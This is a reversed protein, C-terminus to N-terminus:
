ELNQIQERIQEVLVKLDVARNAVDSRTAKSALTNAERNLEQALFDLRRGVAQDSSLADRMEAVHATLRDLEEAVDAKQALLAVEQELRQPDLQAALTQARERLRTRLDDVLGDAVAAVEDRIQEIERLRGDIMQALRTGERERHAIFDALLEEVLTQVAAQLGDQDVEPERIIGPQRSLEIPDVKAAHEGLAQRITALLEITRQLADADIAPTQDRADQRDFRLQCEVKGRELRQRLTERLAPEVARLTEPLRLSLDLYRHNVSRLECALTGWPTQREARAFATMSRIM